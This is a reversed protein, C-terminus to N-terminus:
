RAGIWEDFALLAQLEGERRLRELFGTVAESTLVPLAQSREVEEYGVGRLVFMRLRQGDYRWVEPVGLAVYISLKEESSHHVDIEVAVDPPPDHEFDLQVRNGLEEARQVYFCADPELGKRQSPRKITAAGFSLIVIRKKLSLVTLLKEIFRAYKERETGLTMATLIGDDYSLRLGSAEGVQALLEEYDEWGVHRFVVVADAPLRTVIEFYNTATQTTM